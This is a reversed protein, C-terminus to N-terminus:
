LLLLTCAADMTRKKKEKKKKKKKLSTSINLNKLSGGSFIEQLWWQM